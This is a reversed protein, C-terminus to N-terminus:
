AEEIDETRPLVWERGVGGRYGDENGVGEAILGDTDVAVTALGSVEDVHGIDDAGKGEGATGRRHFAGVVDTISFALGDARQRLRDDLQCARTRPNLMKGGAGAIHAM